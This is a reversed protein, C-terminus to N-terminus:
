YQPWLEYVGDIDEDWIDGMLTVLEAPGFWLLNDDDDQRFDPANGDEELEWFLDTLDYPSHIEQYLNDHWGYDYEDHIPRFAYTEDNVKEYTWKKVRLWKALQYGDAVWPEYDLATTPRIIIANEKRM